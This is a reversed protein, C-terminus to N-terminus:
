FRFGLTIFVQSPRLIYVTELLMIDSQSFITYNATNFINRWNVELDLRAKQFRFRYRFDMFFNQKQHLHYYETTLMLFHRQRTLLTIDFFHRWMNINAARQGATYSGNHSYSARYDPNIEQSIRVSAQPTLMLMYSDFPGLQGNVLSQRNSGSYNASLKLTSKMQYFYKSTEAYVFHNHSTNPRELAEVVSTGDLNIQTSCM